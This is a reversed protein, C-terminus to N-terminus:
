IIKMSYIVLLTFGKDIPIISEVIHNDDYLTGLMFNVFDWYGLPEEFFTKLYEQHLHSNIVLIQKIYKNRM